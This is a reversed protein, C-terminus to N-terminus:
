APTDLKGLQQVDVPIISMDRLGDLHAAAISGGGHIKLRNKNVKGATLVRVAASSSAAITVPYTLVSHPAPIDHALTFRFDQSGADIPAATVNEVRMQVTGAVLVRGQPVGLGVPWTGLPEILVADGVLSGPVTVATDPATNAPISALDVTVDVVLDEAAAPAHPLLNGTAPSRSLITGEAYTQETLEVNQLTADAAAELELVVSGRDVNTITINPV